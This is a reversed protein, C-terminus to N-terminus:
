GEKAAANGAQADVGALKLHTFVLLPTSDYTQPPAYPNNADPWGTFKSTNYLGWLGGYYMGIVPLQTYVAQQLKYNLQTQQKPDTTKKYEDLLADVAPDKFRQFNAAAQKGVPAYFESSLLNNFAQFLDGGGMGGMAVEFDGNQIAQQYGAPQPQKIDVQIGLATLQKRVEQVARLWDTYGNATTIAFSLQKGAANVLKGDQQTYGAQAFAELAAKTNQKVIGQDAISPNLQDQQNPLLLGTQGAAQMYNETAVGAIKDRDLALSIGQRVNLDSFPAKSLNPVLSIVGGPPFWYKNGPNAAEWTGQVNSMYAYAWDFGKTVVDLQSTSAPLVLHNVQIKDAQWYDQNKNMTYQQAAFNGLTYPGTGIPDPNRWTDPNPQDKWLHEPVILTLSIISQAPADAGKLKVVLHQGGAGRDEVQMSDIHQWAGKIDLTPYKKLLDFTFKVDSATFPQGDSWKVGSRITYDITSANPLTYGSALWPTQKGDLANTVLLPEYIYSAAVRKNSLYPNFNKEMMPTGKDAALLMTDKPISPDPQSTIKISCATLALLAAVTAAAFATFRTFRRHPKAREPQATNSQAARPAPQQHMRM